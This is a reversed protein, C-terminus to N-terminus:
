LLEAICLYRWDYNHAAHAPLAQIKKNLVTTKLIGQEVLKKKSEHIKEQLHPDQMWKEQPPEFGIKERRWVIKEPLKKDMLKRLIWKTYGEQIKNDSVLLFAFEALKHQLFPLRVEVGHAMSNRDAFRLLEELGSQMCDYYLIDNLKTVYPKSIGEWENGQLQKLYQRSIYPHRLIQNFAKKEVALAAHAPLFAAFYNKIGWQFRINNIRLLSKQHFAHTFRKRGLLEQLYWHIYRSYGAFLEDAGQGDLLVKVQQQSALQYVKFQAYASSSTIPEEQHWLLKGIEDALGYGTPEVSHNEHPLVSILTNIYPSEDKEFGPFVASFSKYGTTKASQAYWAIISSDLGGSVSSGIAVDSRLRFQVSQSILKELHTIAEREPMEVQSQKDINWYRSLEHSATPHHWLLFHAPPLSFIDDFFTQSKDSPNQIQGLTLYNLVSRHHVKKAIGVTWLAKMESAFALQEGEFWYYLPKEGFRDRAMFLTKDYEDWIAFAFMGDFYQMCRTKYLDYAAVIVETDSNSHFQYGAKMLDARLEKYNYIEGNHVITYRDRYHMPQAAAASLDIIALRRHAFGIIGTPNIWTGAGDPGRHALAESMKKLSGNQVNRSIIGAIGCM